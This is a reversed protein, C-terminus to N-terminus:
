RLATDPCVQMAALYRCFKDYLLEPANPLFVVDGQIATLIDQGDASISLARVEQTGRKLQIRHRVDGEAL